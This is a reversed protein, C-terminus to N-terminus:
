QGQAPAPHSRCRQETGCACGACGAPRAPTMAVAVRHGLLGGAVMLTLAGLAAVSVIVALMAGVSALALAGAATCVVAAALIPPAAVRNAMSFAVDSRLTAPTRIGVFRNRPLRQLWGLVGIALLAVGAVLLVMGLVTSPTM